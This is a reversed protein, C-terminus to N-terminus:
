GNAPKVTVYIDRGQRNILLLAPRSASKRVAARLDEITRVPQRNVEQIVDGPQIGADAARGDANVDDVVLGHADKPARVRAALEPTLPEVSVGLAASDARDASGDGDASGRGDEDRRASRQPSAEDLKVSLHKEGGDRAITLDATTGPGAEAVRNRLTNTDHVPQGNFAEIVDGRKVGARDAASDRTVGSVIAGRTEKLGLNAAMDATVGQVTVGLQARTVKGKTRLDDMVHRAMNVPIAFGIGINGDSVSLIQSNIGVLEGKTNVLAGGSNGHNIPADTQLFDEYSGDGVSTSRGKASIIGMTVTQGINLPNGVALVVDGVKVADSNGLAIAHLSTGTVKLLALDSPQDTGVVKASMTRGDTFDLNITDAGEVVHNNTLVYGDTTVVVGSGLASQKQRPQMRPQGRGSRNGFFQSFLDDDPLQFETPSVRARGEARVTVVAPSVVDVVDAYSDRGGAIAHAIPTTVTAAPRAAQGDAALGHWAYGTVLFAAALVALGVRAARRTHILPTNM